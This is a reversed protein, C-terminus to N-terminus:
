SPLAAKPPGDKGENRPESARQPTAATEVQRALQAFYLLRHDERLAADALEAISRMARLLQEVRVADTAPNSALQEIEPSRQKRKGPPSGNRKL